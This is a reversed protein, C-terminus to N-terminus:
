MVAMLVPIQPWLSCNAPWIIVTAAQPGGGALVLLLTDAPSASPPLMGPARAARDRSPIPSSLILFLFLYLNRNGATGAPKYYAAPSKAVTM